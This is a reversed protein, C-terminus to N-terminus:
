KKLALLHYDLFKEIKDVSIKGLQPIKRLDERTHKVLDGLTRIGASELPILIRLSLDFDVLPAKMLCELHLRPEDYRDFSDLSEYHYNMSSINFFHRSLVM